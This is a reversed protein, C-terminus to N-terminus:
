GHARFNREAEALQDPDNVGIIEKDRPCLHVATRRGARRLIEMVDTLYYEGQRNGRDVSELAHFLDDKEFCFIGSNIENIQRQEESAESDEIIALLNWDADRVIRGYGGADAVVASLVTAAAAQRRHEALLAALTEGRLLPTDGTLVMVTGDFGDLLTRAQMVAHGTGLRERQLAFELGEGDCERMVAEAQHGVIVVIREPSVARVADVVLRLMPRGCITHLVKARDSKMRKGEGAALIIAATPREGSM